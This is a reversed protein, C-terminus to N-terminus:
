ALLLVLQKRFFSRQNSYRCATLLRLQHRKIKWLIISELNLFSIATMQMTSSLKTETNLNKTNKTQPYLAPIISGYLLDFIIRLIVLRLDTLVHLFNRLYNYIFFRLFRLQFFFYIKHYITFLSVSIFTGQWPQKQGCTETNTREERQTDSKVQGKFREGPVYSRKTIM